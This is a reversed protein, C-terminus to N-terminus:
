SEEPIIVIKGTNPERSIRRNKLKVNAKQAAKAQEDSTNPNLRHNRKLLEATLM